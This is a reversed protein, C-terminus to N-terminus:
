LRPNSGANFQRPNWRQFFLNTISQDNLKVPNFGLNNFLSNLQESYINLESTAKVYYNKSYTFTSKIDTFYNYIKALIKKFKYKEVSTKDVESPVVKRIILFYVDIWRLEGEALLYLINNQQEKQVEGTIGESFEISELKKTIDSTRSNQTWITQIDYHEPLSNLFGNLTKFLTDLSQTSLSPSYSADLKFGCGISGDKNVIIGNEISLVSIEKNLIDGNLQNSRQYKSYNMLYPKLQYM